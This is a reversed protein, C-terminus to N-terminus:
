LFINKKSMDTNLLEKKIDNEIIYIAQHFTEYRFVREDENCKNGM